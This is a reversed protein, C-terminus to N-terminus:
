RRSPTEEKTLDSNKIGKSMQGLLDDENEESLDELIPRKARNKFM